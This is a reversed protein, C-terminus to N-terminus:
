RDVGTGTRIIAWVADASVDIRKTVAVANM